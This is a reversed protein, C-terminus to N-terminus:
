APSSLRFGSQSKNAVSKKFAARYAALGEPLLVIAAIIVGVLSKPAGIKLVAAEIDPAM